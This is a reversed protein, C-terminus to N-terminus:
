DQRKYVDVTPYLVKTVSNMMESDNISLIIAERLYQYGKISDRICMQIMKYLEQTRLAGPVYLDVISYRNDQAHM